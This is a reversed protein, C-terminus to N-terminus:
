KVIMSIDISEPAEYRKHLFGQNKM